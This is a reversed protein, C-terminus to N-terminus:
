QKEFESSVQLLASSHFPNPSINVYTNKDSPNNVADIIDCSNFLFTSDFYLIISNQTFCTLTTIPADTLMDINELLGLTSGIGEIYHGIGNVGHWEWRKRYTSNILVSDVNSITSGWSLFGKITDNIQLNFDYLIQETSDAQSIIFVKRLTTDQRISGKYGTGTFPLCSSSSLTEVFPTWLKHYNISNILTDGAFVYSYRQEWYWPGCWENYDVNWVADSDPFPYYVNTQAKATLTLLTSILLLHKKM